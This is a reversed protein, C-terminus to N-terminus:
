GEQSVAALAFCMTMMAIVFTQLSFFESISLFLLASSGLAFVRAMSKLLREDQAHALVSLGAAGLTAVLVTLSLSLGDLVSTFLPRRIGPIVFVHSPALMNLQASAHPSLESTGVIHAALHVIAVAFAM